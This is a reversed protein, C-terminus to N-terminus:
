REREVRREDDVARGVEVAREDQRQGPWSAGARQRERHQAVARMEAGEVADEDRCGPWAVRERRRRVLGRTNDDSKGKIQFASSARQCHQLCKEQSSAEARQESGRVSCENQRYKAALRSSMYIQM